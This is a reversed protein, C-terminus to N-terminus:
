KIIKGHRKQIFFNNNAANVTSFFVHLISCFLSAVKLEKITEQLKENTEKLQQAEIRLQILLRSADSLMMAKDSRPIRGPELISGLKM